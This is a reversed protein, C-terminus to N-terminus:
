DSIAVDSVLVSSDSLVSPLDTVVIQGDLPTNAGDPLIVSEGIPGGDSLITIADTVVSGDVVPEADDGCNVIVSLMCALILCGLFKM